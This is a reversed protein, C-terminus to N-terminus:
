ANPLATRQQPTLVFEKFIGFLTVGFGGWFWGLVVGLGDWFWGPGWFPDLLNNKMTTADNQLGKSMGQAGKPCGEPLRRPGKPRGPPGLIPFFLANSLTQERTRNEM